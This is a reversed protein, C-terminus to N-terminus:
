RLNLYIIFKIYLVYTCITVAFDCVVLSVIFADTYTCANHFNSICYKHTSVTGIHWQANPEHSFNYIHEYFNYFTKCDFNSHSCGPILSFKITWVQMCLVTSCNVWEQSIYVWVGVMIAAAPFAIILRTLWSTLYVHISTSKGRTMLTCQVWHLQLTCHADTHMSSLATATHLTCCHANFETCNCHAWFILQHMITCWWAPLTLTCGFQVQHTYSYVYRVKAHM